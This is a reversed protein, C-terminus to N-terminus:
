CSIFVCNPFGNFGLGVLTPTITSLKIPHDLGLAYGFEHASAGRIQGPSSSVMGQIVNEGITCFNLGGRSSGTASFFVIYIYNNEDFDSRNRMEYLLNWYSKGPIPGSYPGNISTYWADDHQGIIMDVVHPNLEFTKNNRM